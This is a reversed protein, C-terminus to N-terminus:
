FHRKKLAFINLYIILFILVFYDLELKLTKFVIYLIILVALGILSTLQFSELRLKDISSQFESESLINKQTILKTEKDKLIKEENKLKKINKNNLENLQKLVSSGAKSTTIVKDMDIFVINSNATAINISSLFFLLIVLFFNKM